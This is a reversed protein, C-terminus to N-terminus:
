QARHWRGTLGSKISSRNKSTWKRGGGQGRGGRGVERVIGRRGGWTGQLTVRRRAPKKEGRWGGWALQRNGSVNNPLHAAGVAARALGRHFRFIVENLGTEEAKRSEPPAARQQAGAPGCGTKDNKKLM